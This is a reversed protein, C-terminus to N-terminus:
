DPLHEILSGRNSSNKDFDFICGQFPVDCSDYAIDSTGCHSIM